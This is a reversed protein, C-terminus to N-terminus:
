CDEDSDWTIREGRPESCKTWQAMTRRALAKAGESVNARLVAEFASKIVAELENTRPRIDPNLPSLEELFRGRLGTARGLTKQVDPVMVGDRLTRSSVPVRDEASQM